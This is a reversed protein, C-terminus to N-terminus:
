KQLRKKIENVLETMPVAIEERTAIMRLTVANRELESAGVIVGIPINFKECRQIQLLIKPNKKPSHEARIGADWLSNVIKLREDTVGKHASIVYVDALNTRIQEASKAQKAELLSCIREVGISAGVCPSSKNKDNLTGILNDYRGGGAVSGIKNRDDISIFFFSNESKKLDFNTKRKGKLEAEFIIGTYYDLGRALKMDYIVRNELGLIKCYKALVKLEEFGKTAAESASLLNLNSFQQELVDVKGDIDIYTRIKDAVEENLGKESIM